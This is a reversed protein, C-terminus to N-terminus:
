VIIVIKNKLKGSLHCNLLYLAAIIYLLSLRRFSKQVKIKIVVIVSESLVGAAM